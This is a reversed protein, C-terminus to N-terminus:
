NNQQFNPQIQTQNPQYAINTQQHLNQNFNTQTSMQNPHTRMLNLNRQTPIQNTQLPALNFPNLNQIPITQTQTQNPQLSISNLSYTNFSNQDPLNQKQPRLLPSHSFTHHPTSTPNYEMITMGDNDWQIMRSKKHQQTNQERSQNNPTLLM